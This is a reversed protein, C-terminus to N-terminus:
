LSEALDKWYTHRDNNLKVSVQTFMGRETRVEDYKVESPEAEVLEAFQEATKVAQVTTKFTEIEANLRDIEEFDGKYYNMVEEWYLLLAEKHSKGAFLNTEWEDYLRGDYETKELFEADSLTMLYKVDCEDDVWQPIILDLGIKNLATCVAHSAARVEVVEHQMLGSLAM